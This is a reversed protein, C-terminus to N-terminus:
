AAAARAPRRDRGASVILFAEVVAADFQTGAGRWLEARAEEYYCSAALPAVRMLSLLAGKGRAAQTATAKM